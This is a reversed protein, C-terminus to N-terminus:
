YACIGHDDSSQSDSLREPFQSARPAKGSLLVPSSRPLYQIMSKKLKSNVNESCLTTDLICIDPLMRMLPAVFLRSLLIGEDLHDSNGPM